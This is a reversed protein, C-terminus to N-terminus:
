KTSHSHVNYIVSLTHFSYLIIGLVYKAGIFLIANVWYRNKLGNNGGILNKKEVLISM